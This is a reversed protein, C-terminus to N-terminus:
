VIGATTRTATADHLVGDATDSGTTDTTPRAWIMTLLGIVLVTPAGYVLTTSIMPTRLARIVEGIGPIVLAQQYVHDGELTAVWPDVAENADGKTRVATTGDPNTIVEVVRHTEVRHDEVPIHYSIVDGVSLATVPQLTTVVVDGPDISPAMSGTLMTATQYGLFRPGIALFLFALIAGIVLVTGAGRLVVGLVRRTFGETDAAVDAAGRDSSDSASM